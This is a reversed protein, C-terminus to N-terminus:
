STNIASGAGVAAPTARVPIYICRAPLLQIRLLPGRHCRPCQLVDRGTLELLQEESRARPPEVAPTSPAPPLPAPAPPVAGLPSTKAPEQQAQLLSRARALKTKVNSGALLGYHRVKVFGAPLVHLLFRRIFELPALTCHQGHKTTFRVGQDDVARIRHNSLGVRHTYRGLYAFIQTTGGFPRKAYVHWDQMFLEQMLAEFAPGQQLPACPGGLDLAAGKYLERLPGLFKTRFVQALSKVPFLFKGSKQVWKAGDLSLGGGTVICHLHPHYALTRSWTHLVATIGLQAGLHKPDRGFTMLTQSAAEFLLGYLLGPNRRMLPRLSAPLTFVVHFHNVPLIREQREALWQVQTLSQCKPCHRNRCSNYAAQQYGCHQCEELHGGLVATRCAILAALVKYQAGSVQTKELYQPAYARLIDAVEWRPLRATSM